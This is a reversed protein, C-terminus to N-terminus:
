RRDACRVPSPAPRRAAQNPVLFTHLNSSRTLPHDQAPRASARPHRRRLSARASSRSAGCSSRRRGALCGRTRTPSRRWPPRRSGAPRGCSALEAVDIVQRGGSHWADLVLNRTPRPNHSSSSTFQLHVPERGGRAHGPPTTSSTRASCARCSCTPSAGAGCGAGRGGVSVATLTGHVEDIIVAFDITVAFPSAFPISPRAPVPSPQSRLQHDM